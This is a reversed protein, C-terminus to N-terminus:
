DSGGLGVFALLMRLTWYGMPVVFLFVLFAAELEVPDPKRRM